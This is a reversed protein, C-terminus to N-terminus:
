HLQACLSYRLKYQMHTNINAHILTRVCTPHDQRLFYSSTNAKEIIKSYHTPVHLQLTEENVRKDRMDLIIDPKNPFSYVRSIDRYLIARYQGCCWMKSHSIEAVCQVWSICGYRVRIPSGHTDTTRTKHLFTVTLYRSRVTYPDWYWINFHYVSGVMWWIVM